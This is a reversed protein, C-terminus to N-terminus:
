PIFGAFNFECTKKNPINVFKASGRDWGSYIKKKDGSFVVLEVIHPITAYTPGLSAHGRM